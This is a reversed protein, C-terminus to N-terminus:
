ELDDLDLTPIVINESFIVKDYNYSYIQQFLKDVRKKNIKFILNKNRHRKLGDGSKGIGAALSVAIDGSRLLEMFIEFSRLEYITIKYYRFHKKSNIDKQSAYIIALRKLKLMLHNYISSFYVFSEKEILNHNLDYVCLYIKEEIDDIELQFLYNSNILIPKSFSLETFLVKKNLYVKDSYGYKKVIRSIEPFTPGDFALTFLSIPYHSYRTSCKIETGYYDPFYLSDPRKDLENEFTLGVSGLGKDVSKIWKKNAIIHFQEILQQVEKNM